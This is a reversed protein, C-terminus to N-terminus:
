SDIVAPWENGGKESMCPAPVQLGTIRVVLSLGLQQM